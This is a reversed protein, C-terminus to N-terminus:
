PGVIPRFCTPHSADSRLGARFSGVLLSLSASSKNGAWRLRCLIAEDANDCRSSPGISGTRM